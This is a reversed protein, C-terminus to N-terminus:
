ETVIIIVQFSKSDVNNSFTVTTIGASMPIVTMTTSHDWKENDFEVTATKKINPSYSVSVTGGKSWYATLTFKRMKQNKGVVIVSESSQFNSAAYGLNNCCLASLLDDYDKAKKANETVMANLSSINSEQISIMSKYDSITRANLALENETDALKSEFASITEVSQQNNLYQVINLVSLIFILISLFVLPAIRKWHFYQKGCVTCKKTQTNIQGGCMKCFRTVKNTADIQVTNVTDNKNENDVSIQEYASISADNIVACDPTAPNPVGGTQKISSPAIEVLIGSETETLDSQNRCYQCFDGADTNNSGCNGCDQTDLLMMNSRQLINEGKNYDDNALSQSKENAVNNDSVSSCKGRKEDWKKCMKKAFYFEAFYLVVVGAKIGTVYGLFTNLLTGVFATGIWILIKVINRERKPCPRSAVRISITRINQIKISCFSIKIFNM